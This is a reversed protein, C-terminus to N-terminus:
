VVWIAQGGIGAGFLATPSNDYYGLLTLTVPWMGAHNITDEFKNFDGGHWSKRWFQITTSGGAPLTYQHDVYFCRYDDHHDDDQVQVLFSSSLNLHVDQYGYNVVTVNWVVEHKDRQIIYTGSWPQPQDHKDTFWQISGFDIQLPGWMRLLTEVTVYEGQFPEIKILNGRATVVYIDYTHWTACGSITVTQDLLTQNGPPLNYPPSISKYAYKNITKDIVWVTVVQASIPGGNVLTGNVKVYPSAVSYNGYLVTIKETAREWDMQSCQVAVQNYYSNKSISWLFINTTLLFTIIVFFVTGLIEAQGRSRGVRVKRRWLRVM